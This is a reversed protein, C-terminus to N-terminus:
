KITVKTLVKEYDEATEQTITQLEKESLTNYRTVTSKLIGSQSSEFSTNANILHKNFTPFLLIKEFNIGLFEALQRMISETHTVLDEFKLIGVQDGWRDKNRVMARASDRWQQLAKNIDSYKKSKQNHRVASPYWNKPDRIVSIIRGKPYIEFFAEVNKEPTALRPTFATVFKKSGTYNQNNLWAGFYSTMYATYVEILTPPAKTTLYELFIMKQLAPLFQFAFSQESKKGKRYGDRFHEIVKDEFLIDFWREPPDNLDLTPWIHKRPHGIMLESPHAHLQPHGDFLQSLLSGGSRQIQSILVLPETVPVINNLCNRYLQQLQSNSSKLAEQRIKMRLKEAKAKKLAKRRIKKQNKSRVFIELNKM